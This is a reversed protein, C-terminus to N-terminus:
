KFDKVTIKTVKTEIGLVEGLNSLVENEDLIGNNDLTALYQSSESTTTQGYKDTKDIESVVYLSDGSIKVKSGLGSHFAPQGFDYSGKQSVVLNIRGSSKQVFAFSYPISDNSEIFYVVDENVQNVQNQGCSVMIFSLAIFFITKKM